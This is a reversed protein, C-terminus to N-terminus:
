RAFAMRQAPDVQAFHIGGGHWSGVCRDEGRQAQRRKVYNGPALPTHVFALGIEEREGMSEMPSLRRAAGLACRQTLPCFGGLHQPLQSHRFSCAIFDLADRQMRQRNLWAQAYRQQDVVVDIKRALQADAHMELSRLQACQAPSRQRPISPDARRAMVRFFQIESCIQARVEGRQRRYTRRGRMGIRCRQAPFTERLEDGLCAQRNVCQAADLRVVKLARASRARLAYRANAGETSDRELPLFSLPDPPRRWNWIARM